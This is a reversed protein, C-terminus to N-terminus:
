EAQWALAPDPGDAGRVFDVVFTGVSDTFQFKDGKVWNIRHGLAEMTPKIYTNFWNEAETKTYPMSPAKQAAAAFAYKASLRLDNTSEFNFGEFKATGNSQSGLKFATTNIGALVSSASGTATTSAATSVGSLLKTLFTGFEDSTLQGDNNTDFTQMLTRALDQVTAGATLPNTSV